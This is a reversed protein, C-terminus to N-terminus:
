EEMRAEVCTAGMYNIFPQKSLYNALVQTSIIYLNEGEFENEDFGVSAVYSNMVVRYTKNRKFKSGDPMTIKIKKAHSKKDLYIVYKIGSVYGPGYNDANNVNSLLSELDKGSLNYLLVENCFPDLKYADNMTFDGKKKSNIRVGGDNQVAIDANTEARLADAMLCGLEERSTFPATATTLVRHLAPNDSLEDVLAQVAADAKPYNKVDFVHAQRDVVRGNEVTITTFTANDLSVGSQVIMVNDQMICPELLTHTHGGIILDIEPLQHALYIDSMLGDHSLVIFVDCSDRMWAYDRAVEEPPRFSFHKLYQPHANPYGTDNVQVLGLLGIRISDREIFANPEIHLQLSDHAYLNACLFGFSAKNIVTRLGDVGGDFEHNGIASYNFGVHNMLDVMPKSPEPHTDNIPNGTRNDGSSLLLLDPHEGRLSDVIAAFQPFREIAAHMDNVSLLHIQGSQANLLIAHCLVLLFLLSKRMFFSLYEINLM